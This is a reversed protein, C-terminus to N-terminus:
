VRWVWCNTRMTSRPRPTQVPAWNKEWNLHSIIQRGLRIADVEDSALYDSVGSVRSHM